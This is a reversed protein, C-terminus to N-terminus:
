GDNRLGHQNDHLEVNQDDPRTRAHGDCVGREVPPLGDGDDLAADAITMGSGSGIILVDFEMVILM